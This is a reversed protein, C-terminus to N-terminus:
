SSLSYLLIINSLLAHLIDNKHSSVTGLLCQNEFAAGCCGILGVITLLSGMVIVIVCIKFFMTYENNSPDIENGNNLFVVTALAVVAIGVLQVDVFFPIKL